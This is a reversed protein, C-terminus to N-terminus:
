KKIKIKQNIKNKDGNIENQQNTKIGKGANSKVPDRTEKYRNIEAYIVFHTSTGNEEVEVKTLKGRQWLKNINSQNTDLIRAADIPRLLAGHLETAKKYDM